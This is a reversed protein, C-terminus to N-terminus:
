YCEYFKHFNSSKDKLIKKFNINFGQLYINLIGTTPMLLKITYFIIVILQM